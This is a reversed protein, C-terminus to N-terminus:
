RGYKFASRSHGSELCPLDNSKLARAPSYGIGNFLLVFAIQLARSLLKM